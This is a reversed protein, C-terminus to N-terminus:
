ALDGHHLVDCLGFRDLLDFTLEGLAWTAAGLGLTFGLCAVLGIGVVAIAVIGRNGVFRRLRTECFERNSFLGTMRGPKKNPESDKLRSRIRRGEGKRPPTPPPPGCAFFEHDFVVTLSVEYPLAPAFAPYLGRGFRQTQFYRPPRPLIGIQTSGWGRGRGALPLPTM